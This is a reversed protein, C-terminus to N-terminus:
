QSLINEIIEKRLFYINYMWERYLIAFTKKCNHQLKKSNVASTIVDFANSKSYKNLNIKINISVCHVLKFKFLKQNWNYSMVTIYAIYFKYIHDNVKYQKWDIHTFIILLIYQLCGKDNWPM